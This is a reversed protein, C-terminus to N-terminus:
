PHLEAVPVPIALPATATSVRSDVERRSPRSDSVVSDLGFLSTGHLVARQTRRRSLLWRLVRSVLLLAVGVVAVQAVQLAPELDFLGGALVAVAVVLLVAPHRLAPVYLLLLGALLATGSIALLVLARGATRVEIREVSGCSSYLYQNVSSPLPAQPDIPVQPHTPYRVQIM